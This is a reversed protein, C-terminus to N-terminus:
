APQGARVLGPRTVSGCADRCMLTARVHQVEQPGRWRQILVRGMRRAVVAAKLAKTGDLVALFRDALSLKRSDLSNLLTGVLIIRM